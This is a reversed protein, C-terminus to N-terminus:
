FIYKLSAEKHKAMEGVQKKKKKKKEKRKVVM